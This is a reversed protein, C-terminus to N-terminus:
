YYYRLVEMCYDKASEPNDDIEFRVSNLYDHWQLVFDEYEQINPLELWKEISIETKHPYDCEHVQNIYSFGGNEYLRGLPFMRCFGPRIPHISCRGEANLFICGNSNPQMKINPLLLGDIVNLEIVDDLLSEFSRNLGACLRKVDYPDLVISNGMDHCCKSCGKCDDCAIAVCDKSTYKKGDTYESLDIDRLM